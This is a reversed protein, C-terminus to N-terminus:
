FFLTHIPKFKFVSWKYLKDSFNLLCFWGTLNWHVFHLFVTVCVYVIGANETIEVGYSVSSLGSDDNGRCRPHAKDFAIKLCQLPRCKTDALELTGNGKKELM